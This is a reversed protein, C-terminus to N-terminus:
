HRGHESEWATLYNAYMARLDSGPATHPGIGAAFEDFTPPRHDPVYVGGDRDAKMREAREAAPKLYLHRM